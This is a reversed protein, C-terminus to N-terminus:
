ECLAKMVGDCLRGLSARSAATQFKGPCAKQGRWSPMRSSSLLRPFYLIAAEIVGVPFKVSVAIEVNFSAPPSTPASIEANSDLEVDIAIRLGIHVDLQCARELERCAVEDELGRAARDRM